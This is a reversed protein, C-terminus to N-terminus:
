NRIVVNGTCRFMKGVLDGQSNKLYTNEFDDPTYHSEIKFDEGALWDAMEEYELGFQMPEGVNRVIEYQERAGYATSTGNVVSRFIYDFAITTGATRNQQMFSLLYKVQPEPLYMVLGELLFLTQLDPAYGAEDLKPALDQHALDVCVFTTQPPWELRAKQMCQRKHQQSGRADVEFIRTKDIKQKFRYSRSDYGAGLIVIQPWHQELAHVFLADMHITRAMVYEYAGPPLLRTKFHHRFYGFKLLWVTWPDLFFRALEDTHVRPVKKELCAMARCIATGKATRSPRVQVSSSM